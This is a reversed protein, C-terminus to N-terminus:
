RLFEPVIDGERLVQVDDVWFDYGRICFDIHAATDNKGGLGIFHNSGIGFLINGYLSEVDMTGAPWPESRYSMAMWNCRHDCGWGIHAPIYARDTKWQAFQDRLMQADGHDGAIEVLRGGKFLLKIPHMFYREIRLVVDGPNLVLVGEASDELPAAACQGSPWHDWRGPVDSAGYQAMGKRGEINFSLDTGNKHTIRVRKGNTLLEAGALTRRKVDANPLLRRLVDEPQRVMLTRAGSALVKNHVHTYLWGFSAMDIVLDSAMMAQLPGRDSVADEAHARPNHMTSTLMYPVKLQFCTAGLEKCAAFFAAPYYPNTRADTFLCVSDGSKIACEILEQKFVPLLEAVVEPDLPFRSM